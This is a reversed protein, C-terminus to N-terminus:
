SQFNSGQDTLLEQPIGVRAFIKVLEEAITEADINRLPVAEPYRTAYNCMVLVYHNGSCSRPLPGVLDMAVRSFPEDVVTLPVMPVRAPKRQCFKQCAECSQCFEAVDQLMSPWYFRQTLRAYTKKRGLHGALPISHALELAKQRCEKPLVLQSLPEPEGKDRPEWKRYLLGGERFFPKSPQDVGDRVVELTENTEQLRQLTKKDVGVVGAGRQRHRPTDKSRILGHRHREERKERRTLTQRVRTDQFLDADWSSFPNPEDVLSPRVQSQEQKDQAEAEAQRNAKAPARTVVLADPLAQPPQNMLKGLEPVDTGLLVSVPLKEAVAATVPLSLGDIDLELTALPYTVVDGHACRLSVTAGAVLREKPVLDQRVMTCACGTDLVVDDVERGKVKGRRNIPKGNITRERAVGEVSGDGVTQGDEVCGWAM